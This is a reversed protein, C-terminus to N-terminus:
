ICRTTGSPRTSIGSWEFACVTGLGTSRRGPIPYSHLRLKTVLKMKIQGTMIKQSEMANLWEVLVATTCGIHLKCCKTHCLGKGENEKKRKRRFM